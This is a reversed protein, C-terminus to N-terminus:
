REIVLAERAANVLDASISTINNIKILRELQQFLRALVRLNGKTIRVITNLTEYDSFNSIKIETGLQNLHHEIIFTMEDKSLIKFEHLFGVRSYLQPYRSIRREIGPMGILVMGFKNRDYINRLQELSTYKLHDVEDVILLKIESLKEQDSYHHYVYTGQSQQAESFNKMFKLIHAEASVIKEIKSPTNTPSATMLITDCHQIEPLRPLSLPDRFIKEFNINYFNSIENWNSYRIASLTKGIGPIGYCLGIYRYNKCSDCFEEFKKYEKTLIFQIDNNM